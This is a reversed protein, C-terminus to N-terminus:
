EVPWVNQDLVGGRVIVPIEGLGAAFRPLLMVGLCKGRGVENETRSSCSSAADAEEFHHARSNSRDEDGIVIEQWRVHVPIAKEQPNRLLVYCLEWLKQFRVERGARM